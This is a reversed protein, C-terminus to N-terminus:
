FPIGPERQKIHVFWLLLLLYLFFDAIFSREYCGQTQILPLPNRKTQGIRWEYKLKEHLIKQTSKTIFVTDWVLRHWQKWYIRQPACVVGLFQGSNGWYDHQSIALWHLFTKGALPKSVQVFQRRFISFFCVEGINFFDCRKLIFVKQCHHTQM